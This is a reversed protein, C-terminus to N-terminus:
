PHQFKFQIYNGTDCFICKGKKGWGRLFTFVMRLECVTYFYTTSMVQGRVVTQQAMLSPGHQRM